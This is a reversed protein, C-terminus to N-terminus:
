VCAIAQTLLAPNELPFDADVMVFLYSVPRDTTAKGRHSPQDCGDCRCAATLVDAYALPSISLDPPLASTGSDLVAAGVLVCVMSVIPISSKWFFQTRHGYSARLM